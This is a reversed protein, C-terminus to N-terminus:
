LTRNKSSKIKLTKAICHLSDPKKQLQLLVFNTEILAQYHEILSPLVGIQQKLM